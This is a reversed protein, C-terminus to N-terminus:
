PPVVNFFFAPICFFPSALTVTRMVLFKTLTPPMYPQTQVAAEPNLLLSQAPHVSLQPVTNRTPLLPKLIPQSICAKKSLQLKQLTNLFKCTRHKLSEQLSPIGHNLQNDTRARVHAILFRERRTPHCFPESDDPGTM